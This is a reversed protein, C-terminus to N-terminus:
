TGGPLSTMFDLTRIKISPPSVRTDIIVVAKECDIIQAPSHPTGGAGGLGLGTRSLPMGVLSPLHIGYTKLWRQAAIAELGARAIATKLREDNCKRM